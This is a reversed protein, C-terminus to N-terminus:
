FEDGNGANQFNHGIIGIVIRNKFTGDDSLGIIKHAAVAM